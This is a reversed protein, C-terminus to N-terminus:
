SVTAAGSSAALRYVGYPAFDAEEPITITKTFSGNAPEIVDLYFTTKDPRVIKVNVDGEATGSLTLQEGRQLKDASMGLAFSAAAYGSVPALVFLLALM